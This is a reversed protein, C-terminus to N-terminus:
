AFSEDIRLVCPRCGGNKMKEYFSDIADHYGLHNEKCDRWIEKIREVSLGATHLTIAVTRGADKLEITRTLDEGIVISWARALADFERNKEAQARVLDDFNHIKEAMAEIERGSDMADKAAELMETRVDILDQRLNEVEISASIFGGMYSATFHLVGNSFRINGFPALERVARNIMDTTEEQTMFNYM